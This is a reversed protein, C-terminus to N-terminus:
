KAAPPPAPAAAEAEEEAQKKKKQGLDFEMVQWQPARIASSQADGVVANGAPVNPTMYYTSKGTQVKIETVKGQERKETIKKETGPKPKITAEPQGEELKEMVPPASSAASAPTQQAGASSAYALLCVASLQWFTSTRKM